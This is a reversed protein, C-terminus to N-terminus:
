RRKYVRTLDSYHSTILLHLQLRLRRMQISLIRSGPSIDVKQITMVVGTVGGDGRDRDGGAGDGSEGSSGDDADGAPGKM